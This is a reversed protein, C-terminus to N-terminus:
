QVDRQRAAASGLHRTHHRRCSNRPDVSVVELRRLTGQGPSPQTFHRGFPPLGAHEHQARELSIKSHSLFLAQM